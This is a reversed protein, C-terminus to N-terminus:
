QNFLQSRQNTGSDTNAIPKGVNMGTERTPVQEIPMAPVPEGIDPAIGTQMLNQTQGKMALINMAKRVMNEQAFPVEAQLHTMIAQFKPMDEDSDLKDYAFDLHKQIHATTASRNPKVEEGALIRQMEEAAEALSEENGENQTDLAIRIEEPNYEGNKLIQEAVWKKNLIQAYLPNNLLMILADVRRKSKVENAQNEADSSLVVIDFPTQHLDFDSKAVEDWEIGNLGILKIAQPESLHEIIGYYYRQGLEAYSETYSKNYLGLRDAVQQLDGYYVGVAVNKDSQGQASPTIGTKQGLFNDMYQFLDITGAVEPTQFEYIGAGIQKVGGSTNAEVLGDPRWELQSPDPFIDPDYARQGFNRKQRNDLAQNFIINMAEAVPRIDDVPAKSWFNFADEHTAWSVFPYTNSKFVDKLEEARIWTGSKLEFFLYYRKNEFELYHEVLPFVNQGVFANTEVDLGLSAFRSLKQKYLEQNEKHNHSDTDTIIQNIQKDSYLGSKAGAKLQAETRFINMQGLFLHNDLDGGGQPECYFDNHDIIELNSKYGPQSEAYYKYIARGSFIALKKAWRDKKSWKGATAASDKLWLASTKQSLKLDAEEGKEFKIVPPNDIKSMLTDVFGSVIPLPINFRGKLAPKSVGNYLDENVSINKLRTQKFKVGAELQKLAIQTLKDALNSAIM